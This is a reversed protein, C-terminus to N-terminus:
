QHSVGETGILGTSGFENCHINTMRTQDKRPPLYRVEIKDLKVYKKEM